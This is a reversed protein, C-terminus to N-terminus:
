NHLRNYDHVIMMTCTHLSLQQDVIYIYVLSKLQRFFSFYVASRAREVATTACQDSVPKSIKALLTLAFWLVAISLALSAAAALSVTMEGLRQAM